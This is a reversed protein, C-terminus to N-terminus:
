KNPTLRYPKDGRREASATFKLISSPHTFDDSFFVIYTSRNRESVRQEKGTKGDTQIKTGSIIRYDIPIQLKGYENEV